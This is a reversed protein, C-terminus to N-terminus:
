KNKALLARSLLIKTMILVQKTGSKLFLRGSTNKTLLTRSIHLLQTSSCGHRLTIETFNCGVKNFDCKSM